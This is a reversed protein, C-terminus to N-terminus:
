RWETVESIPRRSRPRPSEAPYGIPIIAVIEIGDKDYQITKKLDSQIEDDIAGVVTWCAGLGDAHAALLLNQVAASASHVSYPVMDKECLAVIVAPAKSIFSFFKGTTFGGVVSERKEKEMAEFRKELEPRKRGFLRVAGSVSIDAIREIMGKDQVVIFHWPQENESSPAWIAAELIKELKEKEVPRDQYRRISRRNRIAEHMEM